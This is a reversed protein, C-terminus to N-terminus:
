NRYYSANIVYPESNWSNHLTTSICTLFLVIEPNFSHIFLGDFLTRKYM